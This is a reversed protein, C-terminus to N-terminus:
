AHFNEVALQYINLTQLATQRWSFKELQQHMRLRLAKRGSDTLEAVKELGLRIQSVDYPDVLIGASGAVESTATGLSTVVPTGYAFAELIPLGFGEDLSPYALATAMAYLLGLELDSVRGLRKLQPHRYNPEEWGPAGVLVLGIQERMPWWAEVLRQLNKRPELTGVFLFFRPPLSFKHRLSDFNQSILQTKPLIKDVPLAEYILHVKGPAFGLLNIIDNRTNESVAIIEAQKKQLIQWSERHHALIRPHATQPFKLMALDHITSVLPLKNDPPQLYDWSHFVQIQPLVKGVPALCLHHWFLRRLSPSVHSFVLNQDFTLQKSPSLQKQLNYLAQRLAQSGRGSSAFGFLELKTTPLQSLGLFLNSTYQSVGRGYLLSTLDIGVKIM